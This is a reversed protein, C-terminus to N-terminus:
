TQEDVNKREIERVKFSMIKVGKRDHYPSLDNRLDSMFKSSHRVYVESGVNKTFVDAINNESKVFVVKIEGDEIYERVFHYRIDVHKTRNSTSSINTMYIAGVNDVNITMPKEIAVDFFELLQKVFLVEAVTESLAVYEAESSSL